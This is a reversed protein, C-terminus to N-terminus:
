DQGYYSHEGHKRYYHKDLIFQEVPTIMNELQFTGLAMKAVEELTIANKVADTPKEGWSFPGHSAVLVSPIELPSISLKEFCEIIVKGTSYEYNSDIEARTLQRTIPISGYFVDAHTTGLCPIFRKAQAFIVAHTSHTHVVSGIAPWRRYLELHTSLDSSPRLAGEVIKGDLDVIVIDSPHMMNYSVGSPKIAVIGANRDICSANGWTLVVLNAKVLELNAKFAIEKIENFM